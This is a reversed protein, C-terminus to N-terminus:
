DPIVYGKHTKLYTQNIENSKDVLTQLVNSIRDIGQEKDKKYLNM